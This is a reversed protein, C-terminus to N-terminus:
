NRFSEYIEEKISEINKPYNIKVSNHDLYFSRVYHTKSINVINPCEELETNILPCEFAEIDKYFSLYNCLLEVTYPHVPKLIIEDKNGFEIMQGKRMIAIKNCMSYILKFDHSIMILIFGYEKQFEKILKLIEKESEKDLYSTSEDMILVKAKCILSICLCVRQQMGGSLEYPYYNYLKEPEPLGVKMLDIAKEKAVKKNEKYHYTLMESIQKGVKMLPNLYTNPNQFMLSFVKGRLKNSFPVNNYLIEGSDYIVDYDYIQLLAKALTSKGDGSKGIIGLSDGDDLYFSVDRLLYKKNSSTCVSLNNVRLM